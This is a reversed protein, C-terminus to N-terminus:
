EIIILPQHGNIVDGENVLIEKIIGNRSSKYESEMKMASIVIVTQGTQVEEGVSVPIRVVRGPMPSLIINSENLNSLKKRSAQYRSEADVIEVDYTEYLTNVIFTKSDRTEILEVNYSKGKYLISYIGEEVSVIDIDYKKGDVTFQIFNDNEKKMEVKALRDNLKVELEM